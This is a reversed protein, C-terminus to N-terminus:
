EYRLVCTVLFKYHGNVFTSRSKAFASDAIETTTFGNPRNYSKRSEKYGKFGYLDSHYVEMDM